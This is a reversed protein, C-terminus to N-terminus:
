LTWGAHGRHMREELARMLQFFRAQLPELSAAGRASVASGRPTIGSPHRPPSVAEAAPRRERRVAFAPEGPPAIRHMGCHMM